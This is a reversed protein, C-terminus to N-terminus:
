GFRSSAFDREIKPVIGRIRQEFVPSESETAARFLPRAPVRVTGYEVFRWYMEPRRGNIFGARLGVRGSLGRATSEIASKLAGTDVPALSRARQAVSFATTQIVDAMHTRVIDPCRSVAAKLADLGELTMTTKTLRAM